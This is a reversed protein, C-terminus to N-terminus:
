LFGMGIFVWCLWIYIFNKKWQKVIRLRDKRTLVCVSVCVIHLTKLNDPEEKFIHLFKTGLCEWYKM